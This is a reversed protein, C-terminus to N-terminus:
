IVRGTQSYDGSLGGNILQEAQTEKLEELTDSFDEHHKAREYHTDWNVGLHAALGEVTPLKVRVLRDFSDLKEGRTKHHELIEDACHVRCADQVCSKLFPVFQMM